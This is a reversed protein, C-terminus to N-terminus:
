SGARRRAVFGALALGALCLWVPRDGWAVYATPALAPPLPAAVQGAQGLPLSAIVRGRADIIGSIGTNASRLMPLGQEIARLRGQAFHQAPGAWTGFWADNTALVMLRARGPAANVEEAFIGEYCILPLAPGIGPVDVPHLGPGATYAGGESAALGRIGFARLWEGFPIYEGFPVLHAKDHVALTAGEPGIVALSNFYRAGEARQVGTMLPAGRTAEIATAMLDPADDLLWPIATEPWVTLAAPPDEASLALMRAIIADVTEIRWKESQPVNPQVVRVLPGDGPVAPGPDLAVWLAPLALLPLARLPNVRGPRALMGATAALGLTLLTLGHPGVVAAAQALPTDIWVHGILAWPFGTFVLSRAIEAGTWTLVLAVPLGAAGPAMARAVAFAAGWFLALGGAMFVLAFPAMWGHRAIDVFFPQVIWHLTLTFYGAGLAWGLGFAARRRQPFRGRAVLAFVCALALLTGPWLGWPAQGLGAAAGAAM